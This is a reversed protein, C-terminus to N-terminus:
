KKRRFGAVAADPFVDLVDQVLPLEMAEQHTLGGTDHKGAPDDRSPPAVQAPGGAPADAVRVKVPRGLLDTLRQALRSIRGETAFRHADASAAAIEAEVGGGSEALSALRFQQMWVSPGSREVSKLLAAWVADAGDAVTM